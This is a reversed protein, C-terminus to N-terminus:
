SRRLLLSLGLVVLFAFPLVFLLLDFILLVVWRKTATHWCRVVLITDFPTVDFCYHRLFLQLCLFPFEFPVLSFVELLSCFVEWRQTSIFYRAILLVTLWDVILRLVLLIAYDNLLTAFSSAFTFALSLLHSKLLEIKVLKTFLHTCFYRVRALVYKALFFSLYHNM